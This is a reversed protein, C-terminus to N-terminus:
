TSTTANGSKFLYEYRDKNKILYDLAKRRRKKQEIGEFKRM